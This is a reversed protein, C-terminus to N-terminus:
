CTRGLNPTSLSMNFRVGDLNNRSWDKLIKITGLEALDINKSYTRELVNIFKSATYHCENINDMLNSDNMLKSDTVKPAVNRQQVIIVEYNATVINYDVNTDILNINVLQFVTEKNLDVEFSPLTTITNVIPNKDFEAIIFDNLLQLENM